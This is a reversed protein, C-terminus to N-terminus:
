IALPWLAGAVAKKQLAALKHLRWELCARLQERRAEAAPDASASYSRIQAELRRVDALLQEKM